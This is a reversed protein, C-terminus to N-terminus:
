LNKASELKVVSGLQKFGFRSDQELAGRQSGRVGLWVLTWVSAGRQVQSRLATCPRVRSYMATCPQAFSYVAARPQVHSRLATCPQARSYMATCLQVCDGFSDGFNTFAGGPDGM